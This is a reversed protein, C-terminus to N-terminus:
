GAANLDDIDASTLVQGDQFYHIDRSEDEDHRHIATVEDVFPFESAALFAQFKGLVDFINDAQFTLTTVAEDAGYPDEGPTRASFTFITTM